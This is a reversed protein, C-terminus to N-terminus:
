ALARLAQRTRVQAYTSIGLLRPGLGGARSRQLRVQLRRRAARGPATQRVHKAAERRLLRSYNGLQWSRLPGGPMRTQALTGSIGSRAARELHVRPSPASGCAQLQVSADQFLVDLCAVANPKEAGQHHQHGPRGPGLPRTAFVHAQTSAESPSRALAANEWRALLSDRSRSRMRHHAPARAQISSPLSLVAHSRGPRACRSGVCARAPRGQGERLPLPSGIRGLPLTPTPSGVSSPGTLGLRRVAEAPLAWHM